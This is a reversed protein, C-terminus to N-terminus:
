FSVMLFYPFFFSAYSSCPLETSPLPNDFSALLNSVFHGCWLSSYEQPVLKKQLVLHKSLSVQYMSKPADIQCRM